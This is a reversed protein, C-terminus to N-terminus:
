LISLLSNIRNIYTHNEKIYNMSHKIKDETCKSYEDVLKTYLSDLNSEITLHGDFFKGIKTSNTGTWMGYSINKFVRCPVYGNRLHQVERIDFSLYSNRLTDVTTKNDYFQNDKSLSSGTYGGYNHFNKGHDACIHAFRVANEGQITGVFNVDPKSKDYLVPTINDIEQPLLDTGWMIMINKTNPDYWSYKDINQLNKPINYEEHYVLLNYIESHDIKDQIVFEDSLNHIFYKSSKNIPINKSCNLESIFICNDFDEDSEVDNFWRVDYGLSQIAKFFGYHIYSHTHTHLPHGWIVFKHDLRNM